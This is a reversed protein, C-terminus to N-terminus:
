LCLAHPSDVEDPCLGSMGNEGQSAFVGYRKRAGGGGLSVRKAPCPVVSFIAARENKAKRSLSWAAEKGEEAWRFENRQAHFSPSFEARENKAKRFLFEM